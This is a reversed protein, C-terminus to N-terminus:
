ESKCFVRWPKGITNNNKPTIAHLHWTFGLVTKIGRTNSRLPSATPSNRPDCEQTERSSAAPGRGQRLPVPPVSVKDPPLSSSSSPFGPSAADGKGRPTVGTAPQGTTTAWSRLTLSLALALGLLSAGLAWHGSLGQPPARPPLSTAARWGETTGPPGCPLVLAWLPLLLRVVWGGLVTM